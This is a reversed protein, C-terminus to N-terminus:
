VPQQTLLRVKSALKEEILRRKRIIHQRSFGTIDALKKDSVTQQLIPPIESNAEPYKLILLKREFPALDSFILATHGQVWAYDLDDPEGPEKGVLVNDYYSEMEESPFNTVDDLESDVTGQNRTVPDSTLERLKDVLRYPFVSTIYGCFSKGQAKYEKALELILVVLENYLDSTSYHKFFNETFGWFLQSAHVKDSMSLHKTKSNNKTLGLVLIRTGRDTFKLNHSTFIKIYKLILRDFMNIIIESAEHDGKQYRLVAEESLAYEDPSFNPYETLAM